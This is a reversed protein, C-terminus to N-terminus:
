ALPSHPIAQPYSSGAMLWASNIILANAIDDGEYIVNIHTFNNAVDLSEAMIEVVIAAQNTDTALDVSNVSALDLDAAATTLTVATWQGVANLTGIKHWLKTFTLDKAGTGSNDTAQQIHISLDDGATGAPKQLVLYARDYHKLNIWDGTLDSNADANIVDPVFDFGNEFFNANRFM